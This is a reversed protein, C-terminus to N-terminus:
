RSGARGEMGKIEPTEKEREREGWCGEEGPAGLCVNVRWLSRQGARRSPALVLAQIRGRPNQQNTELCQSTLPFEAM